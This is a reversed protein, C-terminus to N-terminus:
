IIFAFWDQIIPADVLDPLNYLSVFDSPVFEDDRSLEEIRINVASASLSELGWYLILNVVNSPFVDELCSKIEQFINSLLLNM